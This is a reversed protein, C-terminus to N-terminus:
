QHKQARKSPAKVLGEAQMWRLTEKLAPNLEAARWNLEQAAKESSFHVQRGALRVGTLPATPARGTLRSLLKEDVFGAAFAVGYPLRTKPTPRGIITEIMALLLKMPTNEGGLLYREGARGFDRAAILGAALSEVPAFNLICDIYAPTAGNAFDMIMKTPPTLAADGPGLPETPIAIVANLGRAAQDAVALEALRKSRPYPGLMDDPDLAITEDAHSVGIPTSRGVLVTLSSCHVFRKVGCDNAIECALATGRHNVTDFLSPDRAWLQANGALHFVSAADAFARAMNKKDLVSGQWDDPHQPPALDFCRVREGKARLKKVLAAGVFGAGGTVVTFNKM